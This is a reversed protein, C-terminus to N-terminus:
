VMIPRNEQAVIRAAPEHERQDALSSSSDSYETQGPSLAEARVAIQELLAHLYAEPIMVRRQLGLAEPYEQNNRADRRRVRRTRRVPVSPNTLDLSLNLDIEKDQHLRM